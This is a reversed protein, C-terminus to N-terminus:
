KSKTRALVKEFIIFLVFGNKTFKIYRVKM